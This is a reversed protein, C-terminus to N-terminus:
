NITIKKLHLYRSVDSIIVEDGLEVGRVIQYSDKNSFGIEVQTKTAIGDRIVFIDQLGEGNVFPGKTLSLANDASDTILGVDVRSNQRLQPNHPQDLKVILKMVGNEITPSLTELEGKLRLDNYAVSVKMGPQLQPAYFDSLSAEVRFNNADSVIALPEGASISAGEEDKIWSLIGARNAVITSRGLLRQQETLSKNLISKELLLGEIEARETSQIDQIAQKLQNIEIKARKVDLQAELLDHKAAAGTSSLQKLRNAKVSHRELEIELLQQRSNIENINKTSNLKRAIIQTEKLAINEKINDTTLKLARTDLQLIPTNKSVRQGLQALVKLIRSSSESTLTEQNASVIVGGASITATISGREVKATRISSRGVSPSFISHIGYLLVALIIMSILIQYLRKHRRAALHKYSLPQDM